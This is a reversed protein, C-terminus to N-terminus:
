DEFMEGVATSPGGKVAIDIRHGKIQLRIHEMDFDDPLIRINAIAERPFVLIRREEDISGAKVESETWSEETM